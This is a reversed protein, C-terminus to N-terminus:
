LFLFLANNSIFKEFDSEKLIQIPIEGGVSKSTKLDKIVKKVEDATVTRFSFQKINKSEKINKM